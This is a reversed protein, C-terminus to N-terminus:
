PRSSRRAFNATATSCSGGSAGDGRRLKRETRTRAHACTRARPSSTHCRDHACTHTCTRALPDSLPSLLSVQGGLTMQAFDDKILHVPTAIPLDKIRERFEDFDLGGSGAWRWRPTDPALVAPAHADALRKPTRTCCAPPRAPPRPRAPPCAPLVSPQGDEDMVDFTTSIQSQLDFNDSFQCFSESLPDLVGTIRCAEAQEEMEAAERAKDAAVSSLFEDLLVTLVINLLIVGGIIMYSGFFWAARGDISGDDAFLSRTLQSAWSDGTAIQMMSFFAPSFSGFYVPSLEGFLHTALTAYICQVVFLIFM